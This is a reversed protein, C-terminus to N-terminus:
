AYGSGAAVLLASAHDLLEARSCALVGRVWATVVEAIGGIALLSAIKADTSTATTGPWFTDSREELAAALASSIFARTHALPGNADLKAVISMLRQDHELLSLLADLVARARERPDAKSTRTAADAIAVAGQAALRELAANTLADRDSFCEYFYRQTLGARACIGTVTLKAAEGEALLEIAADMLRERRDDIRDQASVGGYTRHVPKM